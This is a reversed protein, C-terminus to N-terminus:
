VSFRLKGNNKKAVLTYYPHRLRYCDNRSKWIKIQTSFDRKNSSDLASNYSKWDNILMYYSNFVVLATVDLGARSFPYKLNSIGRKCFNLDPVWLKELTKRLM